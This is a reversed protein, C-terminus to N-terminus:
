EDAYATLEQTSVSSTDGSMANTGGITVTTALATGVVASIVVNLM